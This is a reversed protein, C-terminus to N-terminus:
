CSCCCPLRTTPEMSYWQAYNDIVLNIVNTFGLAVAILGVFCHTSIIPTDKPISLLLPLLNEAFQCCSVRLM